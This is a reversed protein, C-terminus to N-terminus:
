EAGPPNKHALHLPNGFGLLSQLPPRLCPSSVRGYVRHWNTTPSICKYHTKQGSSPYMVSVTDLPTFLAPDQVGVRGGGGGGLFLMGDDRVLWKFMM